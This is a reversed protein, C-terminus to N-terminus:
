GHIAVSEARQPMQLPIDEVKGSGDLLFFMRGVAEDHTLLALDRKIEANLAAVKERKRRYAMRELYEDFTM